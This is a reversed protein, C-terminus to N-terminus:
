RMFSMAIVTNVTSRRPNVDMPHRNQTDLDIVEWHLGALQDLLTKEVHHREDLKIDEPTKDTSAM